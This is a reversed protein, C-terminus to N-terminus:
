KAPPMSSIYAAVNSVDDASLTLKKPHKVSGDEIGKIATELDSASKGAFVQMKKAHCGHCTKQFIKQGADADAAYAPVGYLWGVLASVAMVQIAKM